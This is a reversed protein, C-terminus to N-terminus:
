GRTVEERPWKRLLEIEERLHAILMSAVFGVVEGGDEKRASVHWSTIDEIV